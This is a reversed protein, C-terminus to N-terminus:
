IVRIWDGFFYLGAGLRARNARQLIERFAQVHKESRDSVDSLVGLTEPDAGPPLDPDEVHGLDVPDLGGRLAREDVRGGGRVPQPLRDAADFRPEVRRTECAYV